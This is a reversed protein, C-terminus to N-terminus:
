FHSPNTIHYINLQTNIVGMATGAIWIDHIMVLVQLILQLSLTLRRHFKDNRMVYRQIQSSVHTERQPYVPPPEWFLSGTLLSLVIDVKFHLLGFVLTPYLPRHVM